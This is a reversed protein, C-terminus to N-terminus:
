AVINANLDFVTSVVISNRSAKVSSPQLERFFNMCQGYLQKNAWFQGNDREELLNRHLLAEFAQEFDEKSLKSVNLIADKTYAGSLVIARIIRGQGSSWFRRDAVFTSTEETKLSHKYNVISRVMEETRLREQTAEGNSLYGPNTRRDGLYCERSETTQVKEIRKLNM